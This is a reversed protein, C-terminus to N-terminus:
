WIVEQTYWVEKNLRDFVELLMPLSPAYQEPLPPPPPGFPGYTEPCALMPYIIYGNPAPSSAIAQFLNSPPAFNGTQQAQNSTSAQPSLPEMSVSTSQAPTQTQQSSLSSSPAEFAAREEPSQQFTQSATPDGEETATPDGELSYEEEIEYGEESYEEDDHSTPPYQAEAPIGTGSNESGQLEKLPDKHLASKGIYFTITTDGVQILSGDNLKGAAGAKKGDVLTKTSMDMITASKEKVNIVAHVRAVKPDELPVSVGKRAGRGIKIMKQEFDLVYPEKDPEQILLKIPAYTPM